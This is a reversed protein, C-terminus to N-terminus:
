QGKAELTGPLTGCSLERSLPMFPKFLLGKNYTRAVTIQHLMSALALVSKSTGSAGTLTVVKIDPDNCLHLAMQQEMNRPVLDYTKKPINLPLLKGNKHISPYPVGLHSLVVFENPFPSLSINLDPVSLYKKAFFEDVIDQSVTISTVGSYYNQLTLENFAHEANYPIATLGQSAIKLRMVLDNTVIVLDENRDRIHEAYNAYSNIITDDALDCKKVDFLFTINGEEYLENLRRITKRAQVALENIGVKYKEVERLVQECVVVRGKSLFYELANESHHLFINTDIAYVMRKEDASTM